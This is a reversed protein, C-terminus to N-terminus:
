ARKRSPPSSRAHTARSVPMRRALGAVAEEGDAQVRREEDSHEPDREGLEDGRDFRQRPGGDGQGQTRVADQEVPSQRERRALRFGGELAHHAQRLAGQATPTPRNAVRGPHTEHDIAADSRETDHIFQDEGTRAVLQHATRRQDGDPMTQDPKEVDGSVAPGAVTTGLEALFERPHPEQV